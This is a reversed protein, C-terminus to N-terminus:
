EVHAYIISVDYGHDNKIIAAKAEIQFAHAKIECIRLIKDPDMESPEVALCKLSSPRWDVSFRQLDNFGVAEQLKQKIMEEILPTDRMPIAPTYGAVGPVPPLLVPIPSSQQAVATLAILSLAATLITKKM